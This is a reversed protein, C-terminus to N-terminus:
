RSLGFAVLAGLAIAALLWVFGGRKRKAAAVEIMISPTPPQAKQPAAGDLDVFREVGAVPVSASAVGRDFWEGTSDRPEEDRWRRDVGTPAAGADNRRPDAFKAKCEPSCFYHTVGGFIGVARARLPDVRRGCVPDKIEASESM